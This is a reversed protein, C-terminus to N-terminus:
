IFSQLEVGLAETMNRPNVVEAEKVKIYGFIADAMAENPSKKQSKGNNNNNTVTDSARKNKFGCCKRYWTSCMRHFKGVLLLRLIQSTTWGCESIFKLYATWLVAGAVQKWELNM